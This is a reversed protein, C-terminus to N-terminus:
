GFLERFFEIAAGIGAGISGGLGGGVATGVGFGTFAAASLKSVSVDHWTGGAVSDIEGVTLMRVGNDPSINMSM